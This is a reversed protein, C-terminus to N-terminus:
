APPPPGGSGESSPTATPALFDAALSRLANSAGRYSPEFSSRGQYFAAPLKGRPGNVAAAVIARM